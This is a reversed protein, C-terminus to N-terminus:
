FLELDGLTPAWSHFGHLVGLDDMMLPRVTVTPGISLRIGQGLISRCNMDVAGSFAVYDIKWDKFKQNLLRRFEKPRLTSDFFCDTIRLERGFRTHKIRGIVVGNLHEATECVVTVYNVVPVDVYRWRLYDTTMNTVLSSCTSQYRLILGELDPHSFVPSFEEPVIGSKKSRMLNGLVNVPRRVQLYVPLRGAEDWGMKLYGPKSKENPTNFVFQDGRDKCYEVLSLTLKRFIGKGQYDPHTATDVARVANYIGGNLTWQWRLFARVGVIRGKDRLLLVPSKGFPNKVHKWIWYLDSKPMLSEGLSVRLLSVIEPIDNQTASEIEMVSLYVLDALRLRGTKYFEVPM